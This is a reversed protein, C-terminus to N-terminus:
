FSGQRNLRCRFQVLLTFLRKVADGLVRSVFLESSKTLDDFDQRAILEHGSVQDVSVAVIWLGDSLVSM